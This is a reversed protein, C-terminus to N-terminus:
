DAGDDDDPSFSIPYEVSVWGGHESAPFKTGLFSERICEIMAHDRLTSKDLVDVSEVIGGIKSDGVIIFRLVLEGALDGQAKVAEAYCDKAFPFFDNRVRERIYGPEM